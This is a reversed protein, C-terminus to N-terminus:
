FKIGAKLVIMNPKVAVDNGTPATVNDKTISLFNQSFMLEAIIATSGGLSYEIGGGVHWGVNILNRNEEINLDSLDDVPTAGEFVNGEIDARSKIAVAPNVGIRGFYTIYGIEQTKGKISIPIEIYQLKYAVKAGPLVNHDKGDWNLSISDAYAITGGYQIINFGTTFTFNDSLNMDLFAGYTFGIKGAEASAKKSDVSLWSYNLGGELGGSFKQASVQLVLTLAFIAVIIKKM